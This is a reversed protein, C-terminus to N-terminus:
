FELANNKPAGDIGALYQLWYSQWGIDAIQKATGELHCIISSLDWGPRLLFTESAGSEREQELTLPADKFLGSKVSLYLDLELTRAEARTTLPSQWLLEGYLCSGAARKLPAYSFGFKLANPSGPISFLYVRGPASACDPNEVFRWYNWHSWYRLTSKVPPANTCRPCTKLNQPTLMSEIITGCNTCYCQGRGHVNEADNLELRQHLLIVRGNSWDSVDVQTQERSQDLSWGFDQFLGPLSLPFATM